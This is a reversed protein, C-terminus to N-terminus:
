RIAPAWAEGCASPASHDVAGRPVGVLIDLIPKAPIGRIATSGIHQVDLVHEGIADIIRAKELAFEKARAEHAEFLLVQGAPLGLIM